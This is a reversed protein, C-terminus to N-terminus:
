QSGQAAEACRTCTVVSLLTGQIWSAMQHQKASTYDEYTLSIFESRAANVMPMM